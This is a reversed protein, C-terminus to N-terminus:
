VFRVNKVTLRDGKWDYVEDAWYKKGSLWDEIILRLEGKEYGIGILNYKIDGASVPEPGKIEYIKKQCKVCSRTHKINVIEYGNPGNFYSKTEADRYEDGAKILRGCKCCTWDHRAKRIFTNVTKM